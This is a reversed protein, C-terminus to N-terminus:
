PRLEAYGREADSLELRKGALAAAQRAFDNKKRDVIRRIKDVRKAEVGRAYEQGAATASKGKAKAAAIAKNAESGMSGAAALAGIREIRPDGGVEALLESERVMRLAELLSSRDAEYEVQLLEVEASLQIIRAKMAKPDATSPSEGPPAEPQPIPPQAAAMAALVIDMVAATAIM